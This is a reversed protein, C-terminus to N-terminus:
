NKFFKKNAARYVYIGSAVARGKELKWKKKLLLRQLWGEVVSAVLKMNLAYGEDELAETKFTSLGIMRGKEDILPGGSNGVELKADFLLYNSVPQVFRGVTLKLEDTFPYGVAAVKQGPTAKLTYSIVNNQVTPTKTVLLVLDNARDVFGMIINGPLPEVEKPIKVALNEYFELEKEFDPGFEKAVVHCATLILARGYPTIGVIVGSGTKEGQNCIIKVTVPSVNNYAKAPMKPLDKEEGRSNLSQSILALFVILSLSSKGIKKTM